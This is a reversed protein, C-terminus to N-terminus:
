TRCKNDISYTHWNQSLHLSTARLYCSEGSKWEKPGVLHQDYNTYYSVHELLLETGNISAYFWFFTGNNSDKLSYTGGFVNGSYQVEAANKGKISLGKGYKTEIITVTTNASIRFYSDEHFLPNGNRNLPIPVIVEYSSSNNSKIFMMSQFGSDTGSSITPNILGPLFVLCGVIFFSIILIRLFIKSERSDVVSLQRLSKFKM